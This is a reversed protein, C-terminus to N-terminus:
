RGGPPGLSVTPGEPPPAAPDPATPQAPPAPEPQRRLIANWLEFPVARLLLAIGFYIVTVIILRLLSSSTAAYAAAVAVACALAIRPVMTLSVRLRKDYRALGVAYSVALVVEAATPAVAAGRAGSGPILVVAAITSVAVAAANARLLVGYLELSLLAFGFTAVLFTTMVAVGQIELVGIAPLFHSGAVVKIGLPAGVLVCLTMWVGLLLAVEFLRQLGYRLRAIDGRAARAFIPFSASIIMWPLTALVEVIRFAAAYYGAQRSTSLYSVLILAERFYIVGVAAAVAYPLTRSVLSRWMALDFAPRAAITGRLMIASGILLALGSVITAGTFPVVGVGLLVLVVYTGALAAQRLLDLSAAAPIRLGVLLPVTFNEGVITFVLGAGGALIGLTIPTPSGIVAAVAAVLLVAGTTATIRLGILNRLLATREAPTCSAYERIALTTLGGETFGAIIFIIASVTGFYGFRSPGLHRTVLPVSGVSLVLGAGFSAMRVVGGRIFRAGAEPSEAVDAVPVATERV